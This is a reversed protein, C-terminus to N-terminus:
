GPEGRLPMAPATTVHEPGVEVAIAAVSAQTSAVILIGELSDAGAGPFLDGIFRVVQGRAPLTDITLAGGAVPQGQGDRLTLHLTTAAEGVNTIAVVSDLNQSRQRRVPLAVGNATAGPGAGAIGRGPVAFRITGGIPRDATVLVSGLFLPGQGDSALRLTGLPPITFDVRSRPQLGALGVPVALGQADFFDARGTLATSSSPNVLLLESVVGGGNALLPFRLDRPLYGGDLETVPFTALHGPPPGVEVAVASVMGGMASRNVRVALTAPTEGLDAGPFLQGIFAILTGDPALTRSTTALLRGGADHLSLDLGLPKPLTNAIAIGSEVGASPDRRVPAVFGSLRRGAEIASVGLGPVTLRVLGGIAHDVSARASGVALEGQGDSGLTLSGLPPLRLTATSAPAGGGLGALLPRGQDDHLDIRGAATAVASPNALVLATTIGRGNLFLPLFRSPSPPLVGKIARVRREEQDALLINGFDDIAMGVAGVQAEAAPGGDGGTAGGGGVTVVTAPSGPGTIRSINGGCFGYVTGRRDTTLPGNCPVLFTDIIGATDIRRVGANENVYVNGAADVAVVTPVSLRAEVAPGGDGTSPEPLIIGPPHPPANGAITTIIGTQADVRRIRHNFTDAIYLNGAPDLALNEPNDLTAQSLPGGDGSFGSQHLSLRTYIADPTIMGVELLDGLVYMTGSDEIAVGTTLVPTGVAPRRDPRLGVEVGGGAITRLTGDSELRRTRVGTFVPANEPTIAIQGLPEELLAAVAPGNEGLAAPGIGALTSIARSSSDIRRIRATGFEIFVIHGSADVAMRDGSSIRGSEPPTGDPVFGPTPGGYVTTAIGDPTVRRIRSFESVYLNGARDVALGRPSASLETAPIGDEDRAGGGVVTTIIGTRLDIKRVRLNEADVLLLNDQADVKLTGTDGAAFFEAELAPGGDGSFGRSGSGAVTTIIGDPSVRRIRFNFSDFIFMSGISDFAVQNPVNLQASTAPGGDGGYTGLCCTGNPGSGAVTTIIGTRADVRRIRHNFSDAIYVNGDPGVAVGIPFALTAALAPGGDGIDEAITAGTGAFRTIIGDPAIRRVIGNGPETLYLNGVPDIAVDAPSVPVASAPRGEALYRGVGAVTTIEGPRLSDLSPPLYLFEGTTTGGAATLTVPVFGNVQPPTTVRVEGSSVVQIATGSASGFRVSVPATFGTGRITVRTGGAIPGRGPELSEIQPREQAWADPALSTRGGPWLLAAAALMALPLPFGRERPRRTRASHAGTPM